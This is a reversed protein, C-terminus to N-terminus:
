LDLELTDSVAVRQQNMGGNATVMIYGINREIVMDLTKNSFNSYSNIGNFNLFCSVCYFHVYSLFLSEGIPKLNRKDACPKWASSAVM